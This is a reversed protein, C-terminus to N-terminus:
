GLLRQSALAAGQGLSELKAFAIDPHLRGGLGCDTGAQVNEAGVREAFRTLRQAVLEPHEVVNTAHSVVGPVIVKGEPLKLDDWVTYEHEHRVNGAEFTFYKADAGLCLDAIHRFELDTTHPGHWSGWCIHLRVLEPDIDRLAYNLAEIRLQTFSRYDEVSPEPTIQDWNEALCPDDLQLILGADTIAKYENRLVEAWAYLHEEESAYHSNPVRAGSGPAISTLFGQELGAAELGKKLNAVDTEVAEQGRWTLEGTTAPFPVAHEGTPSTETYFDRFRVWDRRNLMNTLKLDGPSSEQHPWNYLSEGTVELGGVRQFVYSWWAGYDVASSMAKGYEGDGPLTIGLEAQRKVLNVVAESLLADFEPTKKLTFGDDELERAANAAILEPTRPLSGATSVLIQEEPNLSQPM